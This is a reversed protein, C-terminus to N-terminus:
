RIRTAGDPAPAADDLGVWSTTGNAYWQKKWVPLDTKIREVIARCRNFAEVRHPTAVAAVLADEGVALRGVRHSVAVDAHPAHEALIARLVQEADPHASYELAIVPSPTAADHNRVQGVFVTVAGASASRVAALHAAVDLPHAAVAAIQIM